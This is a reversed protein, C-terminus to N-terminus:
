NPIKKSLHEKKLNKSEIPVEFLNTIIMGFFIVYPVKKYYHFWGSHNNIVDDKLKSFLGVFGSVQKM